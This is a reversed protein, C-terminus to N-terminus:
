RLKFAGHLRDYSKNKFTYLTKLKLSAFAM